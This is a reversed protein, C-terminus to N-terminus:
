HRTRDLGIPLAEDQYEGNACLDLAHSIGSPAQAADVRLVRDCLGKCGPRNDIWLM